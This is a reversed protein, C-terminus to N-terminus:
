YGGKINSLFAACQQSEAVKRRGIKREVLKKRKGEMLKKSAPTRKVSGVQSWLDVRRFGLGRVYRVIQEEVRFVIRNDQRLILFSQNSSVAGPSKLFIYMGSEFNAQRELKTPRLRFRVGSGYHRHCLM